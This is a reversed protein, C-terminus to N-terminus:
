ILKASLLDAMMATQRNRGPGFGIENRDGFGGRHVAKVGM